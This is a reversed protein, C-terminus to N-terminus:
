CMNNVWTIFSIKVPILLITLIFSTLALSLVHLAHYVQSSIWFWDEKVKQLMDKFRSVKYSSNSGLLFLSLFRAEALNTLQLTYTSIRETQPRKEEPGFFCHTLPLLLLPWSGWSDSCEPAMQVDTRARLAQCENAGMLFSAWQLLSYFPKLSFYDKGGKHKVRLKLTILHQKHM